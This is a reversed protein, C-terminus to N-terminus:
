MAALMTDCPTPFSEREREREQERKFIWTSNGRANHAAYLEASFEGRLTGAKRM